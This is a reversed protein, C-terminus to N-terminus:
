LDLEKEVNNYGIRLFTSYLESEKGWPILYQITLRAVAALLHLFLSLVWHECGVTIISEECQM